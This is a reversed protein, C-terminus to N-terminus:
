VFFCIWSMLFAFACLLAGTVFEGSTHRGSVVSARFVIAFVIGGIIGALLSYYYCAIFVTGALSCAHGSAKIKLVKDFLLLLAASVLYVSFIFILNSSKNGSLGSMVALSYGILSLWMALERQGERKKSCVHGSLYSVPYALIPFIVIFIISILIESTSRFFGDSSLALLAILVSASVPPVTVIRIIKASKRKLEIRKAKM